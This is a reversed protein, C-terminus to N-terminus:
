YRCPKYGLNVAAETNYAWFYSTDLYDCGYTHYLNTGDDAVIVVHEEYFYLKWMQDFSNSRVESLESELDSIEKELSSIKNKNTSITSKQSSITIGREKVTNDLEEIQTKDNLHIVYQTINLGILLMSLILLLTIPLAKKFSFYQKGCSSCVESINDIKGGCKKCYRASEYKKPKPEKRDQLIELNNGDQVEVQRNPQNQANHIPPASSAKSRKEIDNQAKAKQFEVIDVGCFQCFESDDPLAQNCKPCRM